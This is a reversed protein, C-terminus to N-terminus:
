SLNKRDRGLVKMKDPPDEGLLDNWAMELEVIGGEIIASDMMDTTDENMLHLRKLSKALFERLVKKDEICKIMPSQNM